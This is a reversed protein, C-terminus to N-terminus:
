RLATACKSRIEPKATPDLFTRELQGYVNRFFDDCYADRGITILILTFSHVAWDSEVDVRKLSHEM